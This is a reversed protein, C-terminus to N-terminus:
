PLQYANAADVYVVGFSDGTTPELRNKEAPEGERLVYDDGIVIFDASQFYQIYPEGERGSEYLLKGNLYLSLKWQSIIRGWEDQAPAVKELVVKVLSWKKNPLPPFEKWIIHRGRKWEAGTTVVLLMKEHSYKLAFLQNGRVGKETHRYRFDRDRKGRIEFQQLYQESYPYLAVEQVLKGETIPHRYFQRVNTKLYLRADIKLMRNGEYPLVGQESGVVSVLEPKKEIVQATGIVTKGECVEWKLPDFTSGTDPTTEEFGTNQLLAEANSHEAAPMIEDPSPRFSSEIFHKFAEGTPRLSGDPNVLARAKAADVSFWVAIPLGLEAVKSMVATTQNPDDNHQGMENTMVPLGTQAKLYAVAEELAKTDAIYWHFNVYDAGAARYSALLAKGKRIQEQAKPANLLKQEERTFVRAAFDQAALMQGSELYHHYVLLAVLTSVLGGNTCPIGKARAVECAAKLERAYEEPTGTYFLASNEENEVVLVAPKYKELVQSLTRQYAVLDRPPSTAGGRGNNRVTLVLKLGAKLAIDCEPCTGSWEDLFVASPRYYVAGLTKAIEMGQPLRVLRSPLMVGFPNQGTPQLASLSGTDSAVLEAVEWTRHNLDLMGAVELTAEEFGKNQLLAGADLSATSPHQMGISAFAAILLVFGICTAAFWQTQGVTAGKAGSLGLLQKTM